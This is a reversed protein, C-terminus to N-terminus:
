HPHYVFVIDAADLITDFRIITANFRQLKNISCLRLKTFSFVRNFERKTYTNGAM